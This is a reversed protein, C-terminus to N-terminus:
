RRTDLRPRVLPFGKAAPMAATIGEASAERGPFRGPRVAFKDMCGLRAHRGGEDLAPTGHFGEADATRRDLISNM